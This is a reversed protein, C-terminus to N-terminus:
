RAMRWAGHAVRWAGHALINLTPLRALDLIEIAGAIEPFAGRLCPPPPATRIWPM